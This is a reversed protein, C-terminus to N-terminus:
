ACSSWASRAVSASLSSSGGCARTRLSLWSSSIGAEMSTGPSTTNSASPSRRDASVRKISPESSTSMAASVPSDCGTTRLAAATRRVGASSSDSSTTNAPVSHVAPSASATTNAVAILVCSPRIAASEWRTLGSILGSCRWTFLTAHSIAAIATPAPTSKKKAPVVSAPKDSAAATVNAIPRSTAL